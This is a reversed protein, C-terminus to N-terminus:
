RTTLKNIKVVRNDCKGANHGMKLVKEGEVASITNGM